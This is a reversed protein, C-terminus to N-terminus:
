SKGPLLCLGDGNFQGNPNYKTGLIWFVTAVDM